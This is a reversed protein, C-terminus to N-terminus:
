FFVSFDNTDKQFANDSNCELLKANWSSFLGAAGFPFMVFHRGHCKSWPIFVRFLEYRKENGSIDLTAQSPSPHSIYIHKELVRRVAEKKKRKNKEGEHFCVDSSTNMWFLFRQNWIEHCIKIRRSVYTPILSTAQQTLLRQPCTRKQKKIARLGGSTKIPISIYVATQSICPSGFCFLCPLTLQNIGYLKNPIPRTLNKSWWEGYVAM